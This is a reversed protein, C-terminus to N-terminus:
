HSSNLRTSKRDAFGFGSLMLLFTSLYIINRFLLYLTSFILAFVLNAISGGLIYLVFPTKEDSTEPPVLLCQGGTGSISLRKIKLHENEKIWMFNGIRFSSFRYGTLLGFVLHGAEHILINLPLAMCIGAFLLVLSLLSEVMTKEGTAIPKIYGVILIGSVVGLLLSFAHAFYEHWQKKKQKDKEM